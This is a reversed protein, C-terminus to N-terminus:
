IHFIINLSNIEYWNTIINNVRLEVSTLRIGVVVGSINEHPMSKSRLDDFKIEKEFFPFFDSAKLMKGDDKM